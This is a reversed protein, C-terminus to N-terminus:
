QSRQHLSGPQCLCTRDTSPAFHPSQPCLIQAGVLVQLMQWSQSRTFSSGAASIGQVPLLGSWTSLGQSSPFTTWLNACGHDSASPCALISKRKLINRENHLHQAKALRKMNTDLTIKYVNLIKLFANIEFASNCLPPSLSLSKPSTREGFPESRRPPPVTVPM